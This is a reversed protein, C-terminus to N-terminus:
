GCALALVDALLAAATERQGAGAGILTVDGLLDTRYTIANQAGSVQTLPDSQPLRMPRVSGGEASARAILKYREGAAAAAAIDASRIGTIGTVDLAALSVSQGFLAGLLILVKGAADWGGVDATPDSEAYGLTQAQQLAEEYSLGGEMQTLIYNTTGNLIGRVEQITSGALGARGTAIAPTGAMVTAEYRLQLGREQAMAQLRPLALAIPGKNATVIHKGSNLAAECYSLAPQATEINTPSAEVLAEATAHQILAASDPFARQLGEQDPYHELSGQAAAELLAELQLGNEHYLIGRSRTAVGIIQASLGYRQQLNDAKDQLIRAFGQGVTGFGVLVLRM